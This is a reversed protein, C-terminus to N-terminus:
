KIKRIYRKITENNAERDYAPNWGTPSQIIYKLEKIPMYMRPSYYKGFQQIDKFRKVPGRSDIWIDLKPLYLVVHCFMDGFEYEINRINYKDTRYFDLSKLENINVHGAGYEGIAVAHVQIGLKELRRGLYYAYIGCGGANLAPINASVYIGVEKVKMLINEIKKGEVM